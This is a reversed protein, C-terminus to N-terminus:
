PRAIAGHIQDDAIRPEGVPRLLREVDADRVPADHRDLAGDRGIRRDVIRLATEGARAQDLRVDMEVLRADDVAARRLRARAKLGTFPTVGSFCCMVTSSTRVRAAAVSSCHMRCPAVRMRVCTSTSGPIPMRPKSARRLRQDCVVFPRDLDLDAHERLFPQDAKGARIFQQDFAQPAACLHEAARRAVVGVLRSLDPADERERALEVDVEIDVEVDAIRRVRHVDVQHALQGVLIPAAAAHHDAM